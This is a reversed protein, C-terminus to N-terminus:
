AEKKMKKKMQQLKLLDDGKKMGYLKEANNFSGGIEKGNPQEDPDGKGKYKSRPFQPGNVLDREQSFNFGEYEALWQKFTRM